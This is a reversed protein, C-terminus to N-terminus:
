NLHFLSFVCYTFVTPAPVHIKHFLSLPLMSSSSTQRKAIKTLLALDDRLIKSGWGGLGQCERMKNSTKNLNFILNDLLEISLKIIIM